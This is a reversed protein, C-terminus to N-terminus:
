VLRALLRGALTTRDIWHSRGSVESKKCIYGHLFGPADIGELILLAICLLQLRGAGRDAVM